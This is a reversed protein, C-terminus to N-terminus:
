LGNRCAPGTVSSLGNLMDNDSSESGFCTSDNNWASVSARLLVPSLLAALRSENLFNTLCFVACSRLFYPQLATSYVTSICPPCAFSFALGFYGNANATPKKRFDRLVRRM